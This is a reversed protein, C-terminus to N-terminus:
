QKVRAVTMFTHLANTADMDTVKFVESPTKFEPGALTVTVRVAPSTQAPALQSTTYGGGVYQPTIPGIRYVGANLESGADALSGGGFASLPGLDAQEVKPSPSLVTTQTDILTAGHSNWAASYTQVTITVTTPRLGLAAVAKRGRAAAARFRDAPSPM